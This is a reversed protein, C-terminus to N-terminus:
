RVATNNGDTLVDMFALLDALEADTLVVPTRMEPALQALMDAYLAPASRSDQCPVPTGAVAPAAPCRFVNATGAADLHHRVAQELTAYVGDHMYPFTNKVEWLSPTLFAYRDADLGSTEYRGLDRPPTQAAGSGFGPGQQPVALNHFQQDSLLPGTHCRACRAQGFFLLGGRKAADPLDGTGAAYAMLRNSSGLEYWRQAQFASLANAAQAIGMDAPAMGPYAAALQAAFGANARLRQMLADWVPQPNHEVADDSVLDALANGDAPDYAGLMETRSILPFLAQAATVDRLGAPLRSGAPTDFGGDARVAVRGDWFLFRRNGQGHNVLAPTNRHIVPTGSRTPPSGTGDVGIGLALGDVGANGTAHCSACSVKQNGSLLTSSFLNQGLAFLAADVVPRAPAVIGNASLQARLAADLDVAAEPQGAAPATATAAPTASATGSDAATGSAVGPLPLGGGGGGGGCASFLLALLSGLLALRLRSAPM